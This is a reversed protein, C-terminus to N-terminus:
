PHSALMAGILKYLTRAGVNADWTDPDGPKWRESPSVEVLDFGVIVRKRRLIDLLMLVDHWSLGGPVPTGTNPCLTQSFGDIDFSVYVHPPLTAIAQECLQDWPVDGDRMTSVDEHFSTMIRSTSTKIAMHEAQCFDRIGFQVLRTVQPIDRLVNHMISAHSWDFGEYCVRLDAHADIHLIGLGEEGDISEAIAKIAGYPVSHDGGIVGVLKDLELLEKTKRYVIRNLEEGAANVEALMRALPKSRAVAEEGAEIIRRAKPKNLANLTTIKRSIPLMHIGALFQDGPELVVEYPNGYMRDFLEVQHSAKLIAAPGKATGGRYSTTVEWPVPMLAVACEALTHNLGFIGSGPPAAASPDIPKKPAAKEVKKKM